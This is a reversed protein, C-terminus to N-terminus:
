KIQAQNPCRLSSQAHRLPSPQRIPSTDTQATSVVKRTHTSIHKSAIYKHAIPTTRLRCSAVSQHKPTLSHTSTTTDVQLRKPTSSLRTPSHTQSHTHLRNHSDHQPPPPPTIASPPQHNTNTKARFINLYGFATKPIFNSASANTTKRDFRNTKYNIQHRSTANPTTAHRCGLRQM